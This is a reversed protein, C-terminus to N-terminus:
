LLLLRRLVLRSANHLDCVIERLYIRLYALNQKQAGRGSCLGGSASSVEYVLKSACVEYRLVEIDCYRLDIAPVTAVHFFSIHFGIRKRETIRVKLITRGLGCDAAIDTLRLHDM